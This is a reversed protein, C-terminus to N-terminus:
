AWIDCSYLLAGAVILFATMRGKGRRSEIIRRPYCIRVQRLVLPQATGSSCESDGRAVCELDAWTAPRVQSWVYVCLFVNTHILYLSLSLSLSCSLPPSLSFSLPSRAVCVHTHTIHFSLLEQRGFQRSGNTTHIDAIEKM